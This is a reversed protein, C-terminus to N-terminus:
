RTLSWRAKTVTSWSQNPRPVSTPSTPLTRSSTLPPSAILFYTTQTSQLANPVPAKNPLSSSVPCMVLLLHMMSIRWPMSRPPCNQWCNRRAYRLPTDWNVVIASTSMPSKAPIHLPLPVEPPRMLPPRLGGQVRLNPPHSPNVRPLFSLRKPNTQRLRLNLPTPVPIRPLSRLLPGGNISSLSVSILQRPTVTMLSHSTM